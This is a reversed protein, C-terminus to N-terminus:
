LRDILSLIEDPDNVIFDPHGRSLLEASDYGWTVAIIKIGSQKCAVIDRLEDGIYVADCKEIHHKKLFQDIKKNKGFLNRACYIHEFGSLDHNGLFKEIVSKSNSSIICLKRETTKLIKILDPIRKVVRLSDVSKVYNRKMEMVLSPLKYFPVGLLKLREHISLKSFGRIDQESIKEYQYKEALDNYLEVALRKSDAITGDFDFLIYNM